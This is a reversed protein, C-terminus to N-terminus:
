QERVEQNQENGSVCLSESDAYPCPLLSLASRIRKLTRSHRRKIRQYTRRREDAPMQPFVAELYGGIRQGCVLTATMMDFTAGDLMPGVHEVLLSVAEAADSPHLYEPVSSKKGEPWEDHEIDELSENPIPRFLEQRDQEDCVARFVLKETQQRLRLATRDQVSGVPYGAVVSLFSEIVLQDLDEAPFADGFIRHRLRSLMPYYAVLLVSSWFSSPRRQQESILAITLADKEAYRLAGETALVGMVSFIAHHESLIPHRRRAESFLKQHKSARVESRLSPFLSRFSNM